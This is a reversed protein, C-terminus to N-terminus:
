QCCSWLESTQFTYSLATEEAAAELEEDSADFRLINDRGPHSLTAVDVVTDGKQRCTVRAATCHSNVRAHAATSLLHLLPATIRPAVAM